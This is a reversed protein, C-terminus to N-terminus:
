HRSNSVKQELQEVKKSLREREGQVESYAEEVAKITEQQQKHASRTEKLEAQAGEKERCVASLEAEKRALEERTSM